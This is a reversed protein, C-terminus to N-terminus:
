GDRIDGEKEVEVLSLMGPSGKVESSSREVVGSRFKEM